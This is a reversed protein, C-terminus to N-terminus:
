KKILLKIDRLGVNCLMKGVMNTSSGGYSPNKLYSGYLPVKSSYDGNPYSSYSSYRQNTSCNQQKYSMFRLKKIPIGNNSVKISIKINDSIKPFKGIVINNLQTNVGGSIEFKQTTLNNTPYLEISQLVISNNFNIQFYGNDVGLWFTNPNEDILNKLPHGSIHSVNSHLNTSQIKVYKQLNTNEIFYTNDSTYLVIYIILVLLSFIINKRNKICLTIVFTISM